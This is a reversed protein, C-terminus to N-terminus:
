KSRAVSRYTAEARGRRGAADQVLVEIQFTSIDDSQIWELETGGDAQGTRVDPSWWLTPRLLPLTLDAPDLTPFDAASQLGQVVTIDEMESAPVELNGDISHLVVVGYNGLASFRRLLDRQRYYIDVRQLESLPLRGIYDADRTVKGDLIFIPPGPNFKEIAPNYVRATYQGGRPTYELTTRVERFFTYVDKFREYKGLDVTEDPVLTASDPLGRTRPLLYETQNALQYIRKRLASLEQYRRILENIPLKEQFAVGEPELDVALSDRRIEMFQLRLPGAFDPLELSFAGTEPATKAYFVRRLAPSWASLVPSTFLDGNEQKIRGTLVIGEPIASFRPFFQRTFVTGRFWDASRTLERDTVAVSAHAAVARGAQDMVRLRARVRDGPRPDPTLVEVTVRLEPITGIEAGEYRAEEVVAVASNDTLDNYIPVRVSGITEEKTSQPVWAVFRLQYWGERADYPIAYYGDLVNAETGRLYTYDVRQGRDDMVDLRVTFRESQLTAPLYLKYWIVEGNVYFPRDIHVVSVAAQAALSSAAGLGLLLLLLPLIRTRM